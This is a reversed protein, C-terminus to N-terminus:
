YCKKYFTLGSMYTGSAVLSADRSSLFLVRVSGDDQSLIVGGDAKWTITDIDTSDYTFEQALDNNHVPVFPHPLMVGAFFNRMGYEIEFFHDNLSREGTEENKDAHVTHRGPMDFTYLKARQSGARETIFKSGYMVPFMIDNGIVKEFPHDSGYPVVPDGSSHFSVIATSNNDIIGLDNVAGWMNGVARISFHDSLSPNVAMILGDKEAPKPRDKDSMFAVNLATIGGASTGAVFVREPDIQYRDKNHVLFRIAANVDQVARFGAREPSLLLGFGLRYNVSAVAYGCGAFYRAWQPFGIDAKDGNYFAGGHILVLLPRTATGDRKPLYIDMDLDLEKEDKDLIKSLYISLFSEGTDPYSSWYGKAKAYVVDNIERVAYVSDTYEWTEPCEEFLPAEYPEYHEVELKWDKGSTLAVEKKGAKVKVNRAKAFLTGEDEYYTGTISKKGSKSFTAYGEGKESEIRYLVGAEFPAEVTDCAALILLLVFFPLFRRFNM